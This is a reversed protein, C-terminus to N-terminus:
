KEWLEGRKAADYADKFSRKGPPPIAHVVREKSVGPTRDESSNASRNMKDVVKKTREAESLDATALKFLHEMYDGDTMKSGPAPVFLQGLELMKSEHKEWGPHKANFAEITAKTEAAAAEVAMASHAQKVPEIEARLRAEIAKDRADFVPQMFKWEDPLEATETKTEAKAVTFGLEKAVKELTAAADTKLGEILPNWEELEKRQAALAQTKTTFAKNMREYQAKATGTLKAVEDPTLLADPDDVTEVPPDATEPPEEPPTTSTDDPPPETSGQDKSQAKISARAEAFVDASTKPAETTTTVPEEVLEAM